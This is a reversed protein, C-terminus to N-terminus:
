ITLGKQHTTSRVTHTEGQSQQGVVTTSGSTENSLKEQLKAVQEKLTQLEAQRQQAVVEQRVRESELQGVTDQHYLQLM